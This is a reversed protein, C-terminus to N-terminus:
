EERGWWSRRLCSWRRAWRLAFSVLRAVVRGSKRQAAAGSEGSQLVLEFGQRRRPDARGSLFAVVVPFLQNRADSRFPLLYTPFSPM